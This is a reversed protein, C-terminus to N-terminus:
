FCLYDLNNIFHHAASVDVKEGLIKFVNNPNEAATMTDNKFSAVSLGMDGHPDQRRLFFAINKEIYFRGNSFPTEYLEMDQTMESPYVPSRWVFSQSAPDLVAYLPVTEECHYLRYNTPFETLGVGENFAQGEFELDLTSGSVGVIRGWKVEPGLYKEAGNVNYKKPVRYFGFVDGREFVYRVPFKIRMETKNEPENFIESIVQYTYRNAFVTTTEESYERVKVRQHPNYFYGEPQINAPIRSV